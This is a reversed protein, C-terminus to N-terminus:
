GRAVLEDVSKLVLENVKNVVNEAGGLYAEKTEKETCGYHNSLLEIAGNVLISMASPTSLVGQVSITM